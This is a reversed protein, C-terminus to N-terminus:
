GAQMIVMRGERKRPFDMTAFREVDEVLAIPPV